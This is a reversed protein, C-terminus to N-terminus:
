PAGSPKGYPQAGDTAAFVHVAIPMTPHGFGCYAACAGGFAGPREPTFGLQNVRGPVADVRLGMEPVFFSHVVDQSTLNLVVPAGQMLWLENLDTTNDPYRVQWAWQLAEVEITPTHHAAFPTLGGLAQLSLVTAAMLVASPGAVFAAQWARRRRAQAPARTPGAGRPGRDRRSARFHWALGVLAVEVLLLTGIALANFVHFLAQLKSQEPSAPVQLDLGGHAAADAALGLLLALACAGGGALM